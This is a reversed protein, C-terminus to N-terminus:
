AENRSTPGTSALLPLPPTIDHLDWLRESPWRIALVRATDFPRINVADGQNGGLTLLQGAATRGVLLGVHGGGARGYVVVAGPTPDVEDGWSAWARARYYDKPYAIGAQQMWHAVAGGCWPQGHLWSGSLSAWVKRLWLSDNPGLSERQGIDARALQLWHPETM